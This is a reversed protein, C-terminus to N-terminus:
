KDKLNIQLMKQKKSKESQVQEENKYGKGLNLRERLSLNFPEKPFNKDIQSYNDKVLMSEALVRQGIISETSLKNNQFQRKTDQQLQSQEEESM